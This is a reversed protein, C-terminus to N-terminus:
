ISVPLHNKVYFKIFISLFLDTSFVFFSAVEVAPPLLSTDLSVCAHSSAPPHTTVQTSDPLHSDPGSSGRGAQTAESCYRLERREIEEGTRCLTDTLDPQQSSQILCCTFVRLLM